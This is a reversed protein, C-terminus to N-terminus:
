SHLCCYVRGHKRPIKGRVASAVNETRTTTEQYNIETRKVQKKGNHVICMYQSDIREENACLLATLIYM